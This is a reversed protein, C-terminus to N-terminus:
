KLLKELYKVTEAIDQDQQKGSIEREIIYEGKYGIEDLRKVFEPFRVRGTGVKVEEGLKMPDTPYRGDKAHVNRV